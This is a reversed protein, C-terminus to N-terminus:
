NVGRLDMAISSLTLVQFPNDCAMVLFKFKEFYSMTKYNDLLYIIDQKSLQLNLDGKLNTETIKTLNNQEFELLVSYNDISLSINNYHTALKHIASYQNAKSILNDYKTDKQNNLDIIETASVSSILCILLIAYMTTKPTTFTM